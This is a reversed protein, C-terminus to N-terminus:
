EGCVPPHTVGQARGARGLPARNETGRGAVIRRRLAAPPARLAQRVQSLRLVGHDHLRHVGGWGDMFGRKLFYNRLFAWPAAAIMTLPTVPVERGVKEAVLGSSYRNVKDVKTHIDPEGFHFLPHELRELAGAVEPAAHVPMETLRGQRKDFLRLYRNLRVGPRNMQWFVQECRAIEYGAGSPGRAMLARLEAGLEPSLMEDADLLLAWDHTTLELAMQKQRGYGAFAHQEIRCGYGAAIELTDDTSFSDLVVIEDAWGVSELCAGLTAENNLTTIFVSLKAVTPPPLPELGPPNPIGSCNVGGGWSM